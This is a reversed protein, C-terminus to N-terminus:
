IVQSFVEINSLISTDINFIRCIEFFLDYPINLVGTEYKHLTQRNKQHNIAKSLDELSYNYKERSTKILNSVLPKLEDFELEEDEYSHKDLSVTLDTRSLAVQITQIIMDILTQEESFRVELKSPHANVDILSPDVLIEIVAIPYRGITLLTKYGEVVANVLSPNKIM